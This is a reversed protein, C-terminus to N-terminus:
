NIKNSKKLNYLRTSDRFNIIPTLDVARTAGIHKRWTYRDDRLVYLVRTISISYVCSYFFWPFHKIKKKKIYGRVISKMLICLCYVIILFLWCSIILSVSLCIDAFVYYTNLQKTHKHFIIIRYVFDTQIDIYIQLIDTISTYRNMTHIRYKKVNKYVIELKWLLVFNTLM